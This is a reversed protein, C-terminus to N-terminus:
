SESGTTGTLPTSLPWSRQAPAVRSDRTALTEIRYKILEWLTRLSVGIPFRSLFSAGGHRGNFDTDIEAVTYGQVKAAAGIFCQFYRYHYRHTLISQLAERKALIFGSKNDRMRMRFTANLLFNLGRSFALRHRASQVPHRVAQVIDPNRECYTAYLEAIDEPRNQLDADILCLLSGRAAHLGSKWASEIGQNVTHKIGRVRVDRRSCNLMEEWTRDTSGDDVLVLEGAINSRDFTALTREVLLQINTEENLCPAIVSVEISRSQSHM